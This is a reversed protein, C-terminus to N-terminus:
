TKLTSIYPKKILKSPYILKFKCSLSFLSFILLLSKVLKKTNKVWTWHCFCGHMSWFVQWFTSPIKESIQLKSLFGLSNQHLNYHWILCQPRTLFNCDSCPRFDVGVGLNIPVASAYKLGFKWIKNIIGENPTWLRHNSINLSIWM